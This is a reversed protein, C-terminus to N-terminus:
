GGCGHRPNMKGAPDNKEAANVPNATSASGVDTMTACRVSMVIKVTISGSAREKRSM